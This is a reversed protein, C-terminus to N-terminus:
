APLARKRRGGYGATGAIGVALLALSSPEPAASVGPTFSLNDAVWPAGNADTLTVSTIGPGSVSLQAYQLASATETDFAVLAKQGNLARLTFADAKGPGAAFTTVASVPTDFSITEPGRPTGGDGLKALPNFALFNSQSLANEGFNSQQNLIAGGDNGSPGSFHVGLPAYLDTLRTTLLFSPPAAIPNGQADVDFNILEAKAEPVGGFLLALAAPIWTARKM